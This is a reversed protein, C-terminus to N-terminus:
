FKDLKKYVDLRTKPLIDKWVMYKNYVDRIDNSEYMVYNGINDKFVLIYKEM